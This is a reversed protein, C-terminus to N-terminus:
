LVVDTRYKAQNKPTKGVFSIQKCQGNLCESGADGSVLKGFMRGIQIRNGISRKKWSTEGYITSYLNEVLFYSDEDDPERQLAMHLISQAVKIAELPASPEVSDNNLDAGTQSEILWILYEEFDINKLAADNLGKTLPQDPINLMLMPM